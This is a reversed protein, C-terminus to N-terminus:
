SSLSIPILYEDPDQLIKVNSTTIQYHPQLEQDTRNFCLQDYINNSIVSNSRSFHNVPIESINTSWIPRTTTLYTPNIYEYESINATGDLESNSMQPNNLYNNRISSRLPKPPNGISILVSCLASLSSKVEVKLRM